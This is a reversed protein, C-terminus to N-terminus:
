DAEAPGVTRRYEDRTAKGYHDGTADQSSLVALPHGMGEMEYSEHHPTDRRGSSALKPGWRTAPTTPGDSPWESPFRPWHELLWGGEWLYYAKLRNPIEFSYGIHYFLSRAQSGEVALGTRVVGM